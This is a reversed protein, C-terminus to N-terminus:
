EMSRISNLIIEFEDMSIEDNRYLFKDKKSYENGEYTVRLCAQDILCGCADFEMFEYYKRGKYMCDARMVINKGNMEVVSAVDTTGSTHLVTYITDGCVDFFLCANAYGYLILEDEGDNDFDIYELSGWLDEGATIEEYLEKYSRMDNEDANANSNEGASYLANIEGNVFDKLVKQSDSTQGINEYAAVVDDFLYACSVLKDYGLNSLRSLFEENAIEGEEGYSYWSSDTRRTELELVFTDDCYKLYYDHREEDDSCHVRIRGNYPVYEFWYKTNNNIEEFNYRLGYTSAKIKDSPMSLEKVEVGDFSYLRYEENKEVLLEPISDEDLYFLAVKEANEKEVVNCYEAIFTDIDTSDEVANTCGCVGFCLCICIFIKIIKM